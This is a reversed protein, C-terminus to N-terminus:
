TDVGPETKMKSKFNSPLPDKINYENYIHKVYNLLLPNNHKTLLSHHSISPNKNLVAFDNQLISDIQAKLEQPSSSDAIGKLSEKEIRLEKHTSTM